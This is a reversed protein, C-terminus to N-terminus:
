SEWITERLMKMLSLINLFARLIESRVKEVQMNHVDNAMSLYVCSWRYSFLKVLSLTM